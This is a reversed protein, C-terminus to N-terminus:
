FLAACFAGGARTCLSGGGDWGGDGGGRRVKAKLESLLRYFPELIPHTTSRQSGTMIGALTQLRRRPPTLASILPHCPPPPPPPRSIPPPPRASCLASSAAFCCLLLPPLPLRCGASPHM